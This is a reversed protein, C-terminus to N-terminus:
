PLQTIRAPFNAPNYAPNPARFAALYAILADIDQPGGQVNTGGLLVTYGDGGTAMFNNVSVRHTATPDQVVGATVIPTGNLTVTVIRTGCSGGASWSYNLSASVQMIRQVTQGQCGVFQQELLDRLQQNTLTMTVMSNGFPQVTFAEGFTIDNPYATDVFGPNRVGGANQFAVEAGGNAPAATAALQADAILKGAPMEGAANASNPMAATATGVIANALPSVLSSYSQVISAISANPTVANRDVIVNNVTAGTVDGTTTEIRLNIDTLLRGTSSAQTVPILRGVSNPLLCNYGTHTHGSVVVDVSDSLGRVIRRIPSVTDNQLGLSCDNIFNPAPGQTGGQHILVVIAEVGRARLKPVLDNVTQVEDLFTLGAVGSPTVITPTEKLTMGIFGVKVTGFQKIGYPPFLTKGTGTDVVNAALFKFKAGEFPFPTGVAAGMCTNTDATSCGGNQMRLLEVRGDDFEHNGVANFDLGVRNMTEITGEDHFFASILPTAGILDGASVVATNPNQAKFAAVHAAIADVGGAPVGSFSGPSQLQGHFDNLALVKVTVEAAQSQAALAGFACMGALAATNRFSKM